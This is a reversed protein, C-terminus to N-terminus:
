VSQGALTSINPKPVGHLSVCHVRCMGHGLMMGNRVTANQRVVECVEGTAANPSPCYCPDLHSVFQVTCGLVATTILCAGAICAPREAGLERHERWM